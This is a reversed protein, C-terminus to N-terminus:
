SIKPDLVGYGGNARKYLVNVRQRDAHFFVFFSHGLLEMQEIAEEETMPAVEIVKRRYILPEQQEADPAENIEMEFTDDMEELMALEELTAKYPNRERRDKRKGKFRTIRRYMKEVADNVVIKITNHDIVAAKEEARFIAGRKHRITIQTSVIDPGRNAKQQSIDVTISAINPLYRHLKGLKEHIFTEIHPSIKVNHLNITITDM